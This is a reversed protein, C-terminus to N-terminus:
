PRMPSPWAGTSYVTVKYGGFLQHGGHLLSAKASTIAIEYGACDALVVTPEEAASPADHPGRRVRAGPTLSPALCRDTEAVKGPEPICAHPTVRLAPKVLIDFPLILYRRSHKEMAAPYFQFGSKKAM